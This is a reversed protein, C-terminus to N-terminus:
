NTKPLDNGIKCSGNKQCLLNRPCGCRQCNNIIKGNSNCYNPKTKSCSGYLMGDSCMGVNIEAINTDSNLGNSVKATITYKGPKTWKQIASYNFCFRDQCTGKLGSGIGIPGTWKIDWLITNNKFSQAISSWIFTGTQDVKLSGPKVLNIIKINKDKNDFQGTHQVDHRFMQWDFQYENISTDQEFFYLSGLETAVIIEIKKDKDIDSILPSSKAFGNLQKPWSSIIEGTDKYITISRLNSGEGTNIVIEKDGNGDIDSVGSGINFSYALRSNTDNLISRVTGNKNLIYIKDLPVVIEPYGDEDLDSMSFIHRNYFSPRSLNIPWNNLSIGNYSFGYITYQYSNQLHSKRSAGFFISLKNEHNIDALIPSSAKSIGEILKPWGELLVGNKNYIYIKSKFENINYMVVVIEKHGDGDVDGMTSYSDGIFYNEFKKQWKITGESDYVILSSNLLPPVTRTDFFNQTIIIELKGDNFLDALVPSAYSYGDLSKSWKVDGSLNLVALLNGISIVIENNGDNELDGISPDPINSISTGATQPNIEFNSYRKPWGELRNGNSKFAYLYYSLKEGPNNTKVVSILIEDEADNDLNFAVPSGTSFGYDPRVTLNIPWKNDIYIKFNDSEIFGNSDIAILSLNYTGDDVHFTDFSYSLIDKKIGNPNQFTVSYNGISIIYRELTSQYSPYVTGKINIKGSIIKPDENVSQIIEDIHAIPKSTFGICYDSLIGHDYFSTCIDVIHPTGDLINNNDDDAIILSDLLEIFNTPQLRLANILIPDLQEKGIKERISFVSSSIIKGGFHIEKGYDKPYRNGSNCTRLPLSIDIVPRTVNVYFGEALNTNNNLDCAFYDALGEHMRGADLRSDSSLDYLLPDLEDIIYHGYEHLVVDNILATNECTLNYNNEPFFFDEVQIDGKEFFNVGYSNYRSYFANCHNDHNVTAPLHSLEVTGISVAYDHIRNIHYFVNSEEDLYSNDDLDWNWDHQSNDSFSSLHKSEELQSNYVTVWPGSLYSELNTLGNLDSIYYYGNEDTEIQNEGIGIYNHQFPKELQTGGTFPDEWEKGIVTGSVDYYIRNDKIDLIGGTNADIFYTLDFDKHNIVLRYSLYYEDNKPYILLEKKDIKIQDLNIKSFDYRRENGIIDYYKNEFQNLFNKNKILDDIQNEKLNPNVDLNIKGYYNTKTFSLKENNVYFVNKSNYVPINKYYQDFYVFLKNKFQTIKDLKFHEDNINLTGMYNRLEQEANSTTIIKNYNINTLSKQIYNIMNQQPQSDQNNTKVKGGVVEESFVNILFYASFLVLLLVIVYVGKKM